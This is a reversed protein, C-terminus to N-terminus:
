SRDVACGLWRPQTQYVGSASRERHQSVVCQWQAAPRSTVRRIQNLKTLLHRLSEPRNLDWRKLEYKESNLYEESGPERPTREILEFAPGYVGYNAGLTAALVARTVFAPRGGRQLYDHLIDPTNTWINPRFFETLPAQSLETFYETLEQKSNRWTFYTYSQTFGLKALRYMIKPRTFAESLFIADPRVRKVEAICWQWFPFPKTHPNDVRFIRVGHDVWFLFVSKLEEWLARWDESEFNFPYIDQYKKPPNEAYQVTGDPRHRFWQPHERVYPHDPSCQFAIDLALEMHRDKAAAVLAHFDDFTGLPPHIAKHGGEPGGIAWPSGVDDPQATTQNNKGKRFARGVPHIPPLYLVDFGMSEVYSLQAIVDRLTGHQGVSPGFSRPFLEYWASFVAREDDVVVAHTQSFTAESRDVNQDLLQLLTEDMAAAYGISEGPSDIESGALAVRAAFKRLEAVDSGAACSAAQEVLKAGIQLDVKLDQGADARKKLDHRWSHFHDVWSIVRYEYRGM